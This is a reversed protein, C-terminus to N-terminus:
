EVERLREIITAKNIISFVIIPIAISIVAILVVVIFISLLFGGTNFGGFFPILSTSISSLFGLPIIFLVAIITYYMGEYILMKKLQKKTMGMSELMALERKRSIISTMMTNTMNLFGIIGVILSITLGIMMIGSKMRENERIVECKSTFYIQFNGSKNIISQIQDNAKQLDSDVKVMIQSILEDHNAYIEEFVTDSITIIDTQGRWHDLNEVVAMVTFEKKVYTDSDPLYFSLTMKDGAKIVGNGYTIGNEKNADRCFILYDGSAFQKGDVVGDLVKDYAVEEEIIDASIGTVRTKINGSPAIFSGQWDPMGAERYSEFEDRLLGQNKVEGRFNNMLVYNGDDMLDEDNNSRALYYKNIETVFPLEELQNYTDKSIPQYEEQQWWVVNYHMIEFDAQMREEADKVPDLGVSGNFAFIFIIASLSISAIVSIAKGRNRFINTLAMRHLRGGRRTNKLKKNYDEVGTYCVAEIPSIQGAVKGPKKCSIYVTLYSFLISFIFILPNASIIVYKDLVTQTMLHPTFVVGIIYGLALGIPIGIFSLMLAQQNIMKKVQKPTTGITKLLGYYRIDHVVSIYFINYILLYGSLMILIVAMIAPIALALVDTLSIIMTSPNQFDPDLGVGMIGLSDAIKGMEAWGEDETSMSTLSNLKVYAENSNDPLHPNYQTIFDEGTFIEAYNSSPPVVPDFYGCLIFDFVKIVEEGNEIVSAKLTIQRGVEYPLDFLDLVFTPMLIENANKPYDGEVPIVFNMQFMDEDAYKLYVKNGVVQESQIYTTSCDRLLGSQNIDESGKLVEYQDLTVVFSGHSDVGKGMDLYNKASKALSIGATFGATLLVTTLMIALVAFLNRIRNVMLSRKSLKQIIAKNNNPFM